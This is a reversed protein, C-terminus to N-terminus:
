NKEEAREADNQQLRHRYRYSEGVFEFINGRHILREIV